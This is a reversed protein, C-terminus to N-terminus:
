VNGIRNGRITRGVSVLPVEASVELLRPAPLRSGAVIIGDVRSALFTDLARSELRNTRRGSALILQYESAEAVDHIGDAVDAFWPNHLDNLLVGITM